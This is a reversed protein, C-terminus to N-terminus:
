ALFYLSSQIKLFPNFEGLLDKSTAEKGLIM